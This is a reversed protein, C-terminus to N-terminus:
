DRNRSIIVLVFRLLNLISVVLSAVYTLAASNLVANVGVMESADCISSDGLIKKARSSANFEVPLTVLDVIVALSFFVVGAILFIDGIASNTFVVFDFLLGIVIIPWLLASAFNSTKIAVTRVKMPVYNNAYQLAHGVEHSAIGLSAVSTSEYVENSLSVTKTKPNFNDTLKGNIKVVKYDYLGATDLILRAVQAGSLGKKSLVKSYKTYNTNVKVQAWVGMILGPLLIIGLIYYLWYTEWM